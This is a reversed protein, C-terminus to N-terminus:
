FNQLINILVSIIINLRIYVHLPPSGYIELTLFVCYSPFPPHSPANSHESTHTGELKECIGAVSLCTM